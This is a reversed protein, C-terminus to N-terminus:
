LGLSATRADQLRLELSEIGNWVSSELSFLADVAPSGALVAARQGLNPGFATLTQRGARVRLRLHKAGAGVPRAELLRLSRSLFLPAPNGHGFPRLCLLGRYLGWELDTETLEHDAIVPQATPDPRGASAAVLREVLRDVNGPAVAFGAAQAHGGYEILLDACTSFLQVFDIGAGRASGRCADPGVELVIAPRSYDDSLRSAVLGLVGGPWDDGRVFILPQGPTREAQERAAGLVRETLQQREVNKQDLLRM